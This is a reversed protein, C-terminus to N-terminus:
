YRGLSCTPEGTRRKDPQVNTSNPARAWMEEDHMFVDRLSAEFHEDCCSYRKGNPKGFHSGVIESLETETEDDSADDDDSQLAAVVRTALALEDRRVNIQTVLVRPTATGHAVRLWRPRKEMAHPKLTGPALRRVAALAIAILPPEDDVQQCGRLFAAARAPAIKRTAGAVYRTPLNESRITAVVLHLDTRSALAVVGFEDSADCAAFPILVGDEPTNVVEGGELLAHVSPLAPGTFTATMTHEPGRARACVFRM